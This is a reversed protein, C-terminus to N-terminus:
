GNDALHICFLNLKEERFASCSRIDKWLRESVYNVLEHKATDQEMNNNHAFCACWTLLDAIQMISHERSSFERITQIEFSKSSASREALLFDELKSLKDKWATIRRDLYIYYKTGDKLRKRLLFYYWKYLAKDPSNEHYKKLDQQHKDIRIGYYMLSSDVFYDIVAKYFDLMTSNVKRRKIEGKVNHTEKLKKIGDKIERRKEKDCFVTGVAM